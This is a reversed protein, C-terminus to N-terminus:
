GARGSLRPTAPYSALSRVCILTSPPACQWGDVPPVRIVNESQGNCWAAFAALHVFRVAQPAPYHMQHVAVSRYSTVNEMRPCRTAGPAPLGNCKRNTYYPMPVRCRLCHMQRTVSCESTPLAMLCAQTTGARRTDVYRRRGAPTQGARQGQTAPAPPNPAHRAAEDSQQRSTGAPSLERSARCGRVM